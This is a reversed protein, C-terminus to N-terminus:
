RRLVIITICFLAFISLLALAFYIFNDNSQLILLSPSQRDNQYLRTIETPKENNEYVRTGVFRLNAEDDSYYYIKNTPYDSEIELSERPRIRHFSSGDVSVYADFNNSDNAISFAKIPYLFSMENVNKTAKFSAVDVPKM